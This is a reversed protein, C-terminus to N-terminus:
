LTRSVEFRNGARGNLMRQKCYLGCAVAIVISVVSLIILAIVVARMRVFNPTLLSDQSNPDEDELSRLPLVCVSGDFIAEPLVGYTFLM